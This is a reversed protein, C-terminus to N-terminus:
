PAAVVRGTIRVPDRLELHRLGPTMFGLGGDDLIQDTRDPSISVLLAERYGAAALRSMLRRQEPRSRVRFVVKDHFVRALEQPLYWGQAIIVNEPREAVARQLRASHLKKLELLRLSYLQTGLTLAVTMAVIAKSLPRGRGAQWWRAITSAALVGLLPFVPLLYRCGWHIGRAHDAPTLGIYLVPYLFAIWWLTTEQQARRSGFEGAESGKLRVFALILIPTTAFLGGSFLLWRLPSPASLHGLMAIAGALAGAAAALPTLWRFTRLGVRPCAIWLIVYPLSLALALAPNKHSALLLRQATDWRGTWYGSWDGEFPSQSTLHYGLASGVTAWQFWGLLGVVPFFALAFCSADVWSRRAFLATCGLVAAFLVLEDRFCTAAGCLLGALVLRSRRGDGVYRVLLWASWTTLCVAPTHEWFTVSYFWVPTCLAVLCVALPAAVRREPVSGMLGQVLLWVAPLTLLGGLLPLAYLGHAGIWRHPLSATLPFFASYTSYLHGHEVRGFPRPLPNHAFAPDLAQGPWAVDFRHYHSREISEMLIFKSGNDNIWFGDAPIVMCTFAYVIGIGTLLAILTATSHPTRADPRPRIPTHLGRDSM